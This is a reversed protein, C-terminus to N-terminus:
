GRGPRSADALQEVAHLGLLRRQELVVVEPRASMWRAAPGPAAKSVRVTNSDYGTSRGAQGRLRVDGSQPNGPDVPAVGRVVRQRQDADPSPPRFRFNSYKASTRRRRGRDRRDRVPDGPHEVRRRRRGARLRHRPEVRSSEVRAPALPVPVRRRRAPGRPGQRLDTASPRPRPDRRPRATARPRRALHGVAFEVLADLRSARSRSRVRRRDPFTQPARCGATPPTPVRRHPRDGLGTAREHRDVRVIRRSRISCMSASEPATSPSVTSRAGAVAARCPAVPQTRSSGANSARQAAWDRRRRDGVRVPVAGAAAQM